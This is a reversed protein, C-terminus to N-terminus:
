ADCNAAPSDCSATDAAGVSGSPCESLADLFSMAWSQANPRNVTALLRAHRAFPILTGDLDTLIALPTYRAVSQWHELM